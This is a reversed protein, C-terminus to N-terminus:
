SRFSRVVKDYKIAKIKLVKKKSDYYAKKHISNKNRQYLTKEVIQFVSISKINDGQMIQEM